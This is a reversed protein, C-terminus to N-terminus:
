HGSHLSARQPARLTITDGLITINKNQRLQHETSRIGMLQNTNKELRRRITPDKPLGWLFCPCSSKPKESKM